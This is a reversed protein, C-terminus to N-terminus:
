ETDRSTEANLDKGSGLAYTPLIHEESQTDFNMESSQQGSPSSRGYEATETKKNLAIWSAIWNRYGSLKEGIWRLAPVITPISAAIM